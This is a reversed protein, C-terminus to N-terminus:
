GNVPQGYSHKVVANIVKGLFKEKDEASLATSETIYHHGAVEMGCFKFVGEDQTVKLSDFVNSQKLSEEDMGASTILHVKKNNLLGKPGDSTVAYAFGNTFVRDIYGKLIAPFANWWLPYIIALQDAWEIYNQEVAIDPCVKGERTYKLEEFGLVPKFHMDYLDRIKVKDGMKEFAESLSKLITYNFSEKRPHAIIILQNM